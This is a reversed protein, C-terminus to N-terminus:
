KCMEKIEKDWPLLDEIDAHPDKAFRGPLESFVHMLYKEPNLSNAKATELISYAIVSAQAGKPTDCFLWNKRGLVVPRQANEVINNSVEVEGHNLFTCLYEKQNIAYTVAEKLKGSPKFITELWSYYEEIIPKTRKQRETVRDKDSLDEINREVEFIRCCFEYGKAAKSNEVTAGKPMADLWKRRMHAWCGARINEGMLGYGSYGDSVLIGTFGELFRTACAGKRSQEYQFLRIQHEARKSSSYAWIRSEQQPTRGPEKNVQLVTEDAHIVSHMLLHDKLRYWLNKLYVDTSIIVWNALTGRSLEVGLRKWIKEQRYLPMADGYKKVIVDTVVSPSAYSHPIMPAPTQSQIIEAKGTEKEARPDAYTLAFYKVMYVKEPERVLESRVEVKGICKLPEGHTNFKQEDPLDIVEEKVPLKESMEKMTRKAKRNYTTVSVTKEEAPVEVDTGETKTNGDGTIEEMCIQGDNLVYRRKESSQGFRARNYNCIIQIKEEIIKDKKQNDELLKDITKQMRAIQERLMSVQELVADVIAKPVMIQEM